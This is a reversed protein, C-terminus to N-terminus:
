AGRRSILALGFDDLRVLQAVPGAASGSGAAIGKPSSSPDISNAIPYDGLYLDKM